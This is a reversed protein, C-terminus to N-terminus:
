LLTAHLEPSKPSCFMELFSFSISKKVAPLTSILNVVFPGIELLRSKSTTSFSSMRCTFVDGKATLNYFYREVGNNIYEQKYLQLLENVSGKFSRGCSFCNSM